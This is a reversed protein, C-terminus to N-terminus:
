IPGSLHPQESRRKVEVEEVIVLKNDIVDKNFRGVLKSVGNTRGTDTSGFLAKCVDATYNKGHGTETLVATYGM